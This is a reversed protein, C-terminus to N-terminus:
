RFWAPSVDAVPQLRPASCNQTGAGYYVIASNPDPNTVIIAHLGSAGAPAPPYTTPTLSPACSAVIGRDIMVWAPVGDLPPAGIGPELTVRGSLLQYPRPLGADFNSGPLMKAMVLKLVSEADGATMGDPAPGDVLVLTGQDASFPVSVSLAEAQAQLLPPVTTTAAPDTATPSTTGDASSSCATMVGITILSLGVTLIKNAM